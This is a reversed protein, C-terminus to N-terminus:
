ALLGGLRRRGAARGRYREGAHAKAKGSGHPPQDGVEHDGVALAASAVERIDPGPRLADLSELIDGEEEGARDKRVADCGKAEVLGCVQVPEYALQLRSSGDLDPAKAAPAGEQDCRGEPVTNEVRIVDVSALSSWSLLEVALKSCREVAVAKRAPDAQVHSIGPRGLRRGRSDIEEEDVAVMTLPGNACIAVAPPGEDPYASM